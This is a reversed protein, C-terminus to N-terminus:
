GLAKLSVPEGPCVAECRTLMRYWALLTCDRQWFLHLKVRRNSARMNWLYIIIFLMLRVLRRRGGTVRTVPFRRRADLSFENRTGSLRSHIVQEGGTTPAGPILQFAM